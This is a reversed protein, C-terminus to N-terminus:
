IRAGGFAELLWHINVLHGDMLTQRTKLYNFFMHTVRMVFYGTCDVFKSDLKTHFHAM